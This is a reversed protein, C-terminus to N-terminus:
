NQNVIHEFRKIIRFIKESNDDEYIEDETQLTLYTIQFGSVNINYSNPSFLITNNIQTSIASAVASNGIVPFKTVIEVIIVASRFFGTNTPDINTSGEGRVLVYNGAESLPVADKYVPVSLAGSLMQWWSYKLPTLIDKFAM